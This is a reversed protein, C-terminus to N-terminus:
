ATGSGYNAGSIYGVAASRRRKWNIYREARLAILNRQWLSVMVTSAGTPETPATNMDLSAERSADITVPGDDSYYIDDANLFVIMGGDSTDPVSESAIAPFGELIGGLPTMDPYEKQGLANRMLSIKMAQRNSMIFVGTTPAINATFFPAWLSEIDTRLADADTGSASIDTVLNTISAPSTNAVEFVQPDIFQADTFAAMGRLMDNRVVGEVAPNSMRMLEDTVVIIGSAKAWRMTIEGIVLEGVPKAKGEGVWKYTGGGTQTAMRVNFPVRRLAPVGNTGFKGLITMPRLLDVFEDAMTTYDVLKSAFDADTTSGADSAAKIINVLEPTDTWRKAYEMAEFTNGKARAMAMVYRTFTTGKPLNREVRIAGAPVTVSGSHSAQVPVAKVINLKELERLRVLDADAQKVETQLTDFEEAESQDTSRGADISKQMVEAMRAAKAARTAELDAIQEQLTKMQNGKPKLSFGKRAIQQQGSAGPIPTTDIDSQTRGSAALLAEDISKIATITAEQNGAITVASLELWEWKLFRRGYDSGEIRSHEKPNFGISLGRVLKSKLMQWASDLRTKLAGEDTISAIEGEVEIGKDTVKASTVWGIPDHSNHQWLLPLPLKFIAGKPEVIDGMRDTSPTSAIGKFTRKEDDYAKIDLVSYMRNM